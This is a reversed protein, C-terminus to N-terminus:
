SSRSDGPSSRRTGFASPANTAGPAEEKSTGSRSGPGRRFYLWAGLGVLVLGLAVLAGLAVPWASPAVLVATEAIVGSVGLRSANLTATGNPGTTANAWASASFWGRSEFLYESGNATLTLATRIAYTGAPTDSSTVVQVSGDYSAGPGLPPLSLNLEPGSASASVLSPANAVPVPGVADGPYGNLAYVELELRLDTMTWVTSPNHLDFSLTSSGGPQVSPASLNSLLQRDFGLPAIPYPAARGVPAGAGLALGALLVFLVIAPVPSRRRRSRM